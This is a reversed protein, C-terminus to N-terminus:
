IINSFNKLQSKNTVISRDVGAAFRWDITKMRSNDIAADQITEDWIDAANGEAGAIPLEDM